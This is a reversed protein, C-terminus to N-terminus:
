SSIPGQQAVVRNNTSSAVSGGITANNGSILIGVGNALAKSGTTGIFNGQVTVGSATIQLGDSTNGSIVNGTYEEKGGIVDNAGGVVIGNTFNTIFLASVTNNAGSLDLGDSNSGASAGNLEISPWSGGMVQWANESYGNIFVNNATLAPLASGPSITQVGSNVGKTGINFDIETITSGTANASNIADRLSGTGSDATTNVVYTSLLWRDELAELHPRVVRRCAAPKRLAQCLAWRREISCKWNRIWTSFAM